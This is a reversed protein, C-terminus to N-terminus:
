KLNIGRNKEGSLKDQKWYHECITNNAEDVKNDHPSETFYSQYRGEPAKYRWCTEKMTCEKGDCKTIDTMLRM